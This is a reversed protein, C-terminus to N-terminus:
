VGILTKSDDDLTYSFINYLYSFENKSAVSEENVLVENSTYYM